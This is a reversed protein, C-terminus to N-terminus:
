RYPANSQINRDDRKRTESYFWLTYNGWRFPVGQDICSLFRINLHSCTSGIGCGSIEYAFLWGNLWLLWIIPRYEWYKDTHHMQSYKKDHWTHTESHIWVQYNGSYWPFELDFCSRFRFNLHICSSEFGCGSLEFVLVWGNVLVPWIISRYQWYKDTCHM